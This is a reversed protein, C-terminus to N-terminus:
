AQTSISVKVLSQFEKMLTTIFLPEPQTELLKSLEYGIQTFKYYTFIVDKSAVKMNHVQGQYNLRIEDNPQYPASEIEQSYILRLDILIMLQTYSLGFQSLNLKNSNKATFLSILTPKKYIGTIIKVAKEDGTRCMLNAAQYFVEAEKNSINALARLSKFSFMGPQSLETALIKAWLGQMKSSYCQSALEIFKMLWDLDLREFQADQSIYEVATAFIQELNAQERVKALQERKQSRQLLSLEKNNIYIDEGSASQRLPKGAGHEQSGISLEIGTTQKILGIYKNRSPHLPSKNPM